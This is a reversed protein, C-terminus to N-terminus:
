VLTIQLAVSLILLLNDTNLDDDGVTETACMIILGAHGMICCTQLDACM